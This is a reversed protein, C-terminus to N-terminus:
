NLRVKLFRVDLIWHKFRPLNQFLSLISKDEIQCDFSENELILNYLKVIREGHVALTMFVGSKQWPLWLSLSHSGVEIGHMRVGEFVHKSLLLEFSGMDFLLLQPGTGSHDYM